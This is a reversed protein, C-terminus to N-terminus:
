TTKKKSECYQSHIPTLSLILFETFILINILAQIRLKVKGPRDHLGTHSQTVTPVLGIAVVLVLIIGIM